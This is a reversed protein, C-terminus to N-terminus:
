ANCGVGPPTLGTSVPEAVTAPVAANRKCDTGSEDDPDSCYQRSHSGFIALLIIYVQQPDWPNMLIQPIMGQQQEPENSLPTERSDSSSLDLLENARNMWNNYLQLPKGQEQEQKILNARNFMNIEHINFGSPGQQQNDQYNNGQQYNGGGGNQDDGLDNLAGM